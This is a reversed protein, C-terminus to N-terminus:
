PFMDRWAQMHNKFHLNQAEPSDGPQPITGLYLWKLFQEDTVKSRARAASCGFGHLHCSMSASREHEPKEKPWTTLRGLVPWQSWPEVSCFVYGKDNIECGAWFHELSPVPPAVESALTAALSSEDEAPEEPLDSPDDIAGGTDLREQEALMAEELLDQPLGELDHLDDGCVPDAVSGAAEGQSSAAIGGAGHAFPCGLGLEAPLCHRKVHVRPRPVLKAHEPGQGLVTMHLLDPRDCGMQWKLPILTWRSHHRSLELCLEDSTQLHPSRHLGGVRNARM